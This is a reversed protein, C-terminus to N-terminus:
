SAQNIEQESVGQPSPLLGAINSRYEIAPLDEKLFHGVFRDIRSQLQQWNQDITQQNM